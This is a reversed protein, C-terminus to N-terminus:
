RGILYLNKTKLLVEYARQSRHADTPLIKNKVKPDYILFNKYFKKYGLRKFLKRVKNRTTKDINPIKSIGKTIANFYLSTGGVVIPTRKKKIANILKIKLM